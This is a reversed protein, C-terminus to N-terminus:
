RMECSGEPIIRRVGMRYLLMSLALSFTLVQGLSVCGTWRLTQIQACTEQAQLRHGENRVESPLAGGPPPSPHWDNEQPRLSPPSEDLFGQAPRGRM